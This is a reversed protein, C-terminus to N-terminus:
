TADPHPEHAEGDAATATEPPPTFQPPRARRECLRVFITGINIAANFDRHKYTHDYKTKAKDMSKCHDCRKLAWILSRLKVVKEIGNGDKFSVSKKQYVDKLKNGCCHCIQSTNYEDILTVQSAFLV